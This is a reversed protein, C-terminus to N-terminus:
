RPSTASSMARTPIKAKAPAAALIVARSPSAASSDFRQTATASPRPARKPNIPATRARPSASKPSAAAPTPAVLLADQLHTFATRWTAGDGGPPADDDVHLIAGGHASDAACTTVFLAAIIIARAAFIRFSAAFIAFEEPLLTSRSQGIAM